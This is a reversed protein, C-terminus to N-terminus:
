KNQWQQQTLLIRLLTYICGIVIYTMVVQLANPHLDSINALPLKAIRALLTTTLTVAATLVSALTSSPLILLVIGGILLIWACPVVVFNSLLFWASFQHFYYAILPAVGIQASLSVTTMGWLWKLLTHSQQVHAPILETLLPNFLLIGLVALFSMQFGVDYISTPSVILM